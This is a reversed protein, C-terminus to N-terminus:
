DNDFLKGFRNAVALAPDLPVDVGVTEPTIDVAHIKRPRKKGFQPLFKEQLEFMEVTMDRIEKLSLVSATLPDLAIAAVALEPDGTLAAETGLQQVTVNSQNM